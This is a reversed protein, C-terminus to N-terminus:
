HWLVSMPVPVALTTTHFSECLIMYALKKRSRTYKGNLSQSYVELGIVTVTCTLSQTFSSTHPNKDYHSLMVGVPNKSYVPM